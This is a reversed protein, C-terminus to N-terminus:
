AGEAGADSRSHAPADASGAKEAAPYDGNWLAEIAQQLRKELSADVTAAGAEVRCGGRALEPDPIWRIRPDPNEAYDAVLAQDEPNLHVQVDQNRGPLQDLAEHLIERIRDPRAELESRIVKRAVATVLALLEPELADLGQALPDALGTAVAELSAVAERLEKDARARGAKEAEDRGLEHGEAYGSEFGNQRAEEEIAQIEAATPWQREPAAKKQGLEPPEWLSAKADPHNRAASADNM